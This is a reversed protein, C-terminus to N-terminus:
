SNGERTANRLAPWATVALKALWAACLALGLFPVGGLPQESIVTMPRAGFTV